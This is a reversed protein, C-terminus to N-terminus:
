VNAATSGVAVGVVPERFSIEFILDADGPKSVLEYRGWGKVAAFFASYVQSPDDSYLDDGATNSIFVKKASGIQSPILGAEPSKQAALWSTLLMAMAGALVIQNLTRLM